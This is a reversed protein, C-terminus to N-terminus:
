RIKTNLMSPETSIEFHDLRSRKCLHGALAFRFYRVDTREVKCGINSFTGIKEKRGILAWKYGDYSGFIYLGVAGREENKIVTTHAPTTLSWECLGTMPTDGHAPVSAPLTNVLSYTPVRHSEITSVIRLKDNEEEPWAAQFSYKPRKYTYTPIIMSRMGEVQANTLVDVTLTHEDETNLASQIAFSVSLVIHYTGSSLGSVVKSFDVDSWTIVGVLSGDALQDDYWKTKNDLCPYYQGSVLENNSDYVAWVGYMNIVGQGQPILFSDFIHTGHEADYEQMSDHAHVFIRAAEGDKKLCMNITDTGSLGDDADITIDVSSVVLDNVQVTCVNNTKTDTFSQTEFVDTVTREDADVSVLNVNISDLYLSLTYTGPQLTQHSIYENLIDIRLQYLSDSITSQFTKLTITTPSQGSPDTTLRLSMQVLQTANQKFTCKDTDCEFNMMGYPAFSLLADAIASSADSDAVTFTKSDLLIDLSPEDIVRTTYETTNIGQLTKTQVPNPTTYELEVHMMDIVLQLKYTRATLDVPAIAIASPVDIYIKDEERSIESAPLPISAVPQATPTGGRSVGSIPIVPLLQLSANIVSNDMIRNNSACTFELKGEVSLNLTGDTANPADQNPIEITAIDSITKQYATVRKTTTTSQHAATVTIDTQDDTSKPVFTRTYTVKNGTDFFGRAIFRYGQKFGISDVKVVQSLVLVSNDAEDSYGSEEEDVKHLIRQTLTTAPTTNNNVTTIEEVRYSTPYNNVYEAATYSRRSWQNNRDMVYSYPYNPNSVVLESVNHNYNIIAGKIYTLFPVGDCLEAPLKSVLTLMNKGATIPTFVGTAAADDKYNLVDGEVQESLEFVKEGSLIMLGRDTTFVVGNDIPTVSRPNNCVDRVIPPMNTYTMQGSADVMLAYIGDKCFVYLPASGTQGTGVPVANSCLAVIESSGVPYTNEYPFSLPNDTESVKITNPMNESANSESQQGWLPTDSGAIVEQYENFDALKLPQLRDATWCYAYNYLPHPKLQFVQRRQKITNMVVGDVTTIGSWSYVIEMKYARNDPFFLIPPLDEIQRKLGDNVAIGRVVVADNGETKLYTVISLTRSMNPFDQLVDSTFNGLSSSTRPFQVHYYYEKFQQLGLDNYGDAKSGYHNNYIFSYLPYGRFISSVLNAIHLRGNYNYAVKPVYSKREITESVFRVNSQVLNKLLGEYKSDSLDVVLGDQLGRLEDISYDRLLFFPKKILEDMVKTIDRRKPAYSMDVTMSWYTSYETPICCFKVDGYKDKNDLEMEYIEVEPTVFIGIGTFIEPHEEIQKINEINCILDFGYVRTNIGTGTHKKYILGSKTNWNRAGSSYVPLRGATILSCGGEAENGNRVLARVKETSWDGVPALKLYNGGFDYPMYAIEKGKYPNVAVRYNNEAGQFYTYYDQSTIGEDPWILTPPSAFAYSGDYLRVAAIAMFPRTFKNKEKVKGFASVMENHWVDPEVYIESTKRYTLSGDPDGCLEDVWGDPDGDQQGRNFDYATRPGLNFHIEGYPYLSKSDVGGNEDVDTINYLGNREVFLAYFFGDISGDDADSHDIITLLNGNQVITINGSVKCIDQVKQVPSFVGDKDVDAFWKLMGDKVGLVHRYINTHIYLQTYIDKVYPVRPTSEIPQGIQVPTIASSISGGMSFIIKGDGSARWSGDKFRLNIIDECQGDVTGLKTANRTIGSLPIATINEEM